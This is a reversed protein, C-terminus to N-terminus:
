QTIYGTDGCVKVTMPDLLKGHRNKVMSLIMQEQMEKPSYVGLIADCARFYGSYTDIGSPDWQGDHEECRELGERNGQIPTVLLLKRSECFPKVSQLMRNVGERENGKALVELLTLYDIIAMTIGYQEIADDIEKSLEFWSMQGRQFYHLDGKLDERLQNNNVAHFFLEEAKPNLEGREYDASSFGKPGFKKHCHMLHYLHFEDDAGMELAWHGVNHGRAITNYGWTRALTSKRHGGFGLIGFMHGRKTKFEEDYVPIGIPMLMEDRDQSKKEIYNERVLDSDQVMSLNRNSTEDLHSLKGSLTVLQGRLYNYAKEYRNMKEEGRVKIDPDSTLIKKANGWATEMGDQLSIGIIQRLLQPMDLDTYVKLEDLMESYENCLEDLVKWAKGQEDEIQDRLTDLTLSSSHVEYHQLIPRLFLSEAQSLSEELAQRHQYVWRVVGLSRKLEEETEDQRLSSHVIRWFYLSGIDSV